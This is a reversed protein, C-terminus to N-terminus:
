KLFEEIESIRKQFDQKPINSYGDVNTVLAQYPIGYKLMLYYGDYTPQKNNYFSAVECTMDSYYKYAIKLEKLTLFDDGRSNYRKVITDWPPLMIITYIKKFMALCMGNYVTNYIATVRGNDHRVHKYAADSIWCRDLIINCKKEIAKEYLNSIVRLVEKYYTYADDAGPIADFHYKIYKNDDFNDIFTTKGALDPGEVIILSPIFNDM